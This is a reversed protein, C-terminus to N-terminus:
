FDDFLFKLNAQIIVNLRTNWCHQDQLSDAVLRVNPMQSTKLGNDLVNNISNTGVISKLSLRESNSSSYAFAAITAKLIRYHLNINYLDLSEM